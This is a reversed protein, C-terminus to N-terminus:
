GGWGGNKNSSGTGGGTGGATGGGIVAGHPTVRAQYEVVTVFPATSTPSSMTTNSKKTAAPMEDDASAGAASAQGAAVM